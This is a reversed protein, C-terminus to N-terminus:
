KKLGCEEQMRAEVWQLLMETEGVMLPRGLAATQQQYAAVEDYRQACDTIEAHTKPTSEKLGTIATDLRKRPREIIRNHSTNGFIFILFTLYPTFYAVTAVFDPVAAPDALLPITVTLMFTAYAAVILLICILFRINKKRLLIRDQTARELETTIDTLTPPQTTINFELAM